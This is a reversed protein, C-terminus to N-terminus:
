VRLVGLEDGNLAATVAKKTKAYRETQLVGGSSARSVQWLNRLHFEPMKRNLNEGTRVRDIFARIDEWRTPFEKAAWAFAAVYPAAWKSIDPLCECIFVIEDVYSDLVDRLRQPSVRANEWGHQDKYLINCVAPAARAVDANMALRWVDRVSRKAHQDVAAQALPDLGSVILLPVSPYGCERLAILRHQGDILVGNTDVGIGQNTVFWRGDAMDQKYCEIVGRRVNRNNTNMSLLSEVLEKTAMKITATAGSM